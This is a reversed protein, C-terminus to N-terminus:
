DKTPENRYTKEYETKLIVTHEHFQLPCKEVIRGMCNDFDHEDMEKSINCDYGCDSIRLFPCQGCNEVLHVVM